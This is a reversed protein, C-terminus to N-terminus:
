QPGAQQRLAYEERFDRSPMLALQDTMRPTLIRILIELLHIDRPRSLSRLHPTPLTRAIHQIRRSNPKPNNLIPPIIPRHTLKPHIRKRPRRHLPRICNSIHSFHHLHRRLHLRTNIINLKKHQWTAMNCHQRHAQVTAPVQRNDFDSTATIAPSPRASICLRLPLCPRNM